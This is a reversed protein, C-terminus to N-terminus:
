SRPHANKYIEKLEEFTTHTYVETTALSAHGMLKQISVLDANHNMMATAFTHRLVHPSRKKMTTVKSLNCAVIHELTSVPLAGGKDGVFFRLFSTNGFERSRADLYLRIQEDLESGFPVIRQKNRKGTVKICRGHLDVDEDKLNLLESRRIGTHYFTMIILKDRIGDFGDGFDVDDLLRDMEKDRLFCPLPKKNKPGSIKRTPDKDVLGRRLLFRYFSRLASLKRNVSASSMHKNEVMDIMWERIIEANLKEWTMNSDSNKFFDELQRLDDGYSRVTCSSSNKEIELYRLFLDTLM